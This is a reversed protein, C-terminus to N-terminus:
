QQTTAVVDTNAPSRTPGPQGADGAHSLPELARRMEFAVWRAEDASRLIPSISPNILKAEDAQGLYLYRDLQLIRTRDTRLYSRAFPSLGRKVRIADPGIVVRRTVLGNYLRICARLVILAVVVIGVLWVNRM